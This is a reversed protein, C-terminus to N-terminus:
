YWFKDLLSNCLCGLYVESVKNVYFFQGVANAM